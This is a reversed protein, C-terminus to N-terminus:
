QHSKYGKLYFISAGAAIVAIVIAIIIGNYDTIMKADVKDLAFSVTNDEVSSEKGFIWTGQIKPGKQSDFVWGEKSIEIPVKDGDIERTELINGKINVSEIHPQTFVVVQLLSNLPYFGSAFYNSRKLEDVRLYKLPSLESIGMNPHRTTVKLQLLVNDKQPIMTFTVTSDDYKALNKAVDYFGGSERIETPLLISTLKAYTSDTPEMPITYVASIAGRGSVTGSTDLIKNAQGDTHIFVSHFKAATGFAENIDDVYASSITKTTDQIAQIGADNPDRKVNIMICAQESVGLVCQEENTLIIAAIRADKRIKNVLEAPVNLEQINTSQLTISATIDQSTTTDIIIQATEQYTALSPEQAYILYAPIFAIVLIVLLIQKM